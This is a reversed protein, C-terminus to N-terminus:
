KSAQYLDINNQADRKTLYRGSLKEPLKGGGKFMIRWLGDPMKEAEMNRPTKLEKEQKKEKDVKTALKTRPM